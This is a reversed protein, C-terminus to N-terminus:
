PKTICYHRSAVFNLVEVICSAFWNNLRGSQSKLNALGELEDFLDKLNINKTTRHNYHKWLLVLAFLVVAVVMVIGM